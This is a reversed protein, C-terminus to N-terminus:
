EKKVVITKETVGYASFQGLAGNTINSPINAPPGAFIDERLDTEAMFANKFEYDEKSISLIQIKVQSTKNIVKNEPIEYITIGSIYSGNFYKDSVFSKERLTDSEHKNDLYLEFQYFNGEEPPEQVYIKILYFYKFRNDENEEEFDELLVYEYALSDLEPVPNLHANATYTENDVTTVNLTYTKGTEGAVPQDTQYVGDSNEVLNITIDGDTITVAAGTEPIAKQNYFYDSTRTLKITHIKMEDTIAGEVVLKNNDGNNLDLKIEETCSLFLGLVAIYLALFKLKKKM